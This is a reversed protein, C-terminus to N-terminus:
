QDFSSFRSHIFTNLPQQSPSSSVNQAHTYDVTKQKLEKLLRQLPMPGIGDAPRDGALEPRDGAREPKGDAREPMDDAQEPRGGAPKMSEPKDDEPKM